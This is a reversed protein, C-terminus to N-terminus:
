HFKKSKWGSALNDRRYKRARDAVLQGLQDYTYNDVDQKDIDESFLNANIPDNIHNLKNTFPDYVYSFDDMKSITEQDLIELPASRSLNKINGNKDYRFDGGYSEQASFQPGQYKGAFSKMDFIRNLQDYSYLNKQTKLIEEDIGRLSTIVTRINGNYLPLGNNGLASISLANNTGPTRAAYDNEYYGLSYGFADKSVYNGDGGMDMTAASLNESNVAKLWGHLTYAYDVGQVKKDGLIVRSLTGHDYYEYTADKEWIVDDASTEVSTIRNDADYNYKHIFQDSANEQYLVKNVNGSILDYVYRVRKIVGSSEEAVYVIDPSTREAMESVNGHIDYDYFIATQNEELPTSEDTDDFTLIATVRNRTNYSPHSLYLSSDFPGYDDYLTKTVEEQTHSINFPYHDAIADVLVWDEHLGTDHIDFNILKGNEDITVNQHADDLRFQGAEMIRGLKDYRTYSMSEKTPNAIKIDDIQSEASKVAFDLIMSQNIHLDDTEFLLTANKYFKIKGASRKILMKDGDAVTYSTNTFDVTHERYHLTGTADYSFAFEVNSNDTTNNIYSLGFIVDKLLTGNADFKVTHEASGDYYVLTSATGGGNSWTNGSVRKVAGPVPTTLASQLNFSTEISPTLNMQKENQSAVIRGLGDYAFKTEGGDPTKQWVLQNLSNYRYQTKFWHDPLLLCEQDGRRLDDIQNNQSVSLSMRHVGEPAVTQILNGAQDYYYLTYQYEKDPYSMNFNEIVEGMAKQLYQRKFEKKKASIYDNYADLNYSESVSLLFNVCPNELIIQHNEIPHMPAPPCIDLHQRLYQIVWPGWGLVQQGVNSSAGLYAVYANIITPYDNYGYNLPTAGFQALTIFQADTIADINLATLYTIYGQTIYQLNLDSFEALTYSTLEPIILRKQNYAYLMADSSAAIPVQPICDCTKVINIAEDVVPGVGVARVRRSSVVRAAPLNSASYGLFHCIQQRYNGASINTTQSIQVRM